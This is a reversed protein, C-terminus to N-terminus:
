MYSNLNYTEILEDPTMVTVGIKEAQLVKGTKDDKDKTVVVFTNKSVSSGIKGSLKKIVKELEDNRFGTFVVTKNNLPHDVINEGEENNESTIPQNLKYELGCEKMFQIFLAIKSVFLEATKEAIGKVKKLMQIKREMDTKSFMDGKLINPYAEMIPEIKKENIGRGLINSAAMLQILSAEKIKSQISEYIKSALKEKFGEVKLFDSIKMNIIKPVTDYGANIIREINGSKLGDVGIGKFFGTINKERVIPDNNKNELLIDIHTNNWIYPENPMKANEAPQTVSRIHPIVDGSRIIEIVAGIGIKNQEIFAGNFGTAYNIEVGGLKIPEIRVRPKLYGDKSPTWIVDVVRSEAIQDSLVMKFAFSYEPNGPKRTYINDDTVIVGDIEYDYVNRWETLYNSLMENTVDKERKFLVVDVNMETLKELQDFPKREPKILEYAVFHVDKIKDDLSIRNIIGSVLNRANAFKTKYKLEFVNKPIIFEGRIVINKEKPLRLYPIFHSIDQGIKGDGRTYLKPKEGETTYLGSVGDLKCSLVYPGKYTKKWNNLENTDPKRKDMSGMPYPLVAKNKEIEIPAGVSSLISNNPYKTEMYDHIIDYENDTMVPNLNRYANNTYNLVLELEKESLSDLVHIGNKKFNEIVNTVFETNEAYKSVSIGKTYLENTDTSPQIENTVTKVGVDVDSDQIENTVTKVGVDVDSDQIENTVTTVNNNTHIKKKTKPKSKNENVISEIKTKKLSKPKQIAKTKAKTKKVVPEPEPEPEPEVKSIVINEPEFIKIGVPDEHGIKKFEDNFGVLSVDFGVISRGDIRELPTKYVLGLFHFIDKEDKFNHDVLSTKKKDEMKYIGHENMTYGKQLAFHRMATNFYKSGTFYLVAFPYEKESSYLFDVRRYLYSNNEGEEGPLRTIVLSKTPGRSLLEIIIKKELLKDIFKDFVNKNKATIIVDIDGSSQAGRRYSGVIEFKAKANESGKEGTVDIAYDFAHRFYKAYEDIESRPIRKQIDEYYKLGIIQKDNLLEYQNEKLMQISTIGKEVLEKAKKPGVGYIETFLNVPNNKERELVKLTGTEIYEKLKEMITPGIGPKGQLQKIDRIDELFNVITEEAKKYARARHIEGQSMMISYLKELIDIFEENYRHPLKEGVGIGIGSNVENIQMQIKPVYEEVSLKIDNKKNNEVDLNVGVLTDDDEIILKTKKKITPIVRNSENSGKKSKKIKMTKNM